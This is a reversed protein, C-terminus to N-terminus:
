KWIEGAEIKRGRLFDQSTLPKKGQLQLRKIRLIGDATSIDITGAETSLVKGQISFKKGTERADAELIKIIKGERMVFCGPWPTFGRIRREIEVANKTFDIQGDSKSIMPAYTAEDEEQIQSDKLLRKFDKLNENLVEAGLRALEDHLQGATKKDIDAKAKVLMPGSDLGTEMKMLTVGTEKEGNIIAWQIPAAGRYKPLLSAHINVCAIVPIDLIEQPLIKGYAAVVILDPALSNIKNYFDNNGKIRDPQLVEIGYKEARIKVPPKHIKRGRNKSADPQTVVALLDIDESEALVNLAPVAFEPTGMYITKLKDVFNLRM